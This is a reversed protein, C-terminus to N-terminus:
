SQVGQALRRDLAGGWKLLRYVPVGLLVVGLGGLAQAPRALGVLTIVVVLLLVFGAPVIPYGPCRFDPTAGGDRRRLIVLGAVALAVFGLATCFFFAVIQEFTGLLTYVAAIFALLLTAVRSHDSLDATPALQRPLVRDRAM